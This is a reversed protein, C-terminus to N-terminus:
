LSRRRKRRQIFYSFCAAPNIKIRGAHHLKIVKNIVWNIRRPPWNQAVHLWWGSKSPYEEFLLRLLDAVEQRPTDATCNKLQSIVRLKSETLEFNVSRKYSDNVGGNVGSNENASNEDRNQYYNDRVPTSEAVAECALLQDWADFCGGLGCDPNYEAHYVQEIRRVAEDFSVEARVQQERTRFARNPYDVHPQQNNEEIKKEM